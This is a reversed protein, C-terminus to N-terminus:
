HCQFFCFFQYFHLFSLCLYELHIRIIIRFEQIFIILCNSTIRRILQISFTFIHTFKFSSFLLACFNTVIQHFLHLLLYSHHFTLFFHILYNLIILHIIQVLSFTLLIFLHYLLYHRLQIIINHNYHSFLLVIIQNLIICHLSNVFLLMMLSSTFLM